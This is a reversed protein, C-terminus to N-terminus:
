VTSEAASHGKRRPNRPPLLEGAASEVTLPCKSRPNRLSREPLNEKNSAVRASSGRSSPTPPSPRTSRATPRASSPATRVVPSSSSPRSPLRPASTCRSTLTTKWVGITAGGCRDTLGRSASTPNRVGLIGRRFAGQAASEATTASRGGHIGSDLPV